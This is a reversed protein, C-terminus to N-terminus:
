RDARSVNEEAFVANLSDETVSPHADDHGRAVEIEALEEGDLEQQGVRERVMPGDLPEEALRARRRPQLALVDGLHVVDPPELRAGRVHDHLVEVPVIEPLDDTRVARELGLVGHRQHELRAVGDPLRVREPDNV